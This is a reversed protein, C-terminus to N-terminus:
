RGRGYSALRGIVRKQTFDVTIVEHRPLSAPFWWDFWIQWWMPGEQRRTEGHRSSPLLRHLSRHMVERRFRSHIDYPKCWLAFPGNFRGAERSANSPPLDSEGYTEVTSRSKAPNERQESRPRRLIFHLM